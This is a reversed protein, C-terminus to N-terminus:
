IQGCFQGSQGLTLDKYYLKINYLYASEKVIGERTMGDEEQQTVVEAVELFYFLAWFIDLGTYRVQIINLM